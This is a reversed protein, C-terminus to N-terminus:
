EDDVEKTLLYRMRDYCWGLDTWEPDAVPALCGFEDTTIGGTVDITAILDMCAERLEHLMEDKTM